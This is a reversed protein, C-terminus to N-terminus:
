LEFAQSCFKQHLGLFPSVISFNNLKDAFISTRKITNYVWEIIDANFLIWEWLPNNARFM